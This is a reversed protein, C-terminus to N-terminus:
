AVALLQAEAEPMAMEAEVADVREQGGGHRLAKKRRAQDVLIRRWLKPPRPSSIPATRLNRIEMESWGFGPRMCSRRPNCLTGAAENAMKSSALKRLEGYVLPLLEDAAQPDGV